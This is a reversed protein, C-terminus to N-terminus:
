RGSKSSYSYGYFFHSLILLPFGEPTPTEHNQASIIRFDDPLYLDLLFKMSIFLINHIKLMKNNRQYFYM